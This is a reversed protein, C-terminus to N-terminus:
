NNIQIFNKEILQINIITMSIPIKEQYDLIEQIKSDSYGLRKLGQKARALTQEPDKTIDYSEIDELFGYEASHRQKKTNIPGTYPNLVPAYNYIYDDAFKQANWELHRLTTFGKEVKNGKVIPITVGKEHPVYAGDELKWFNFDRKGRRFNKKLVSEPLYGAQVELPYDASDGEIYYVLRYPAEAAQIGEPAKKMVSSNSGEAVLVIGHWARFSADTEAAVSTLRRIAPANDFSIERESRHFTGRSGKPIGLNRGGSLIICKM